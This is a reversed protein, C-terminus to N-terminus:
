SHRGHRYGPRNKGRQHPHSGFLTGHSKFCAGKARRPLQSFPSTENVPLLEDTWGYAGCADVHPGEGSLYLHPQVAHGAGPDSGTAPLDQAEVEQSASEFLLSTAGLTLSGLM